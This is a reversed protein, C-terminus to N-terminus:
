PRETWLSPAILCHMPNLNESEMCDWKMWSPSLHKDSHEIQESRQRWRSFPYSQYGFYLWQYGHGSIVMARDGAKEESLFYSYFFRSNVQRYSTCSIQPVGLCQQQNPRGSSSTSPPNNGRRVTHLVSFLCFLLAFGALMAQDTLFM